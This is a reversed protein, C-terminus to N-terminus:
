KNEKRELEKIYYEIKHIDRLLQQKDNYEEYENLTKTEKNRIEDLRATIVDELRKLDDM